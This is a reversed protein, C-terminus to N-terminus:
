PQSEATGYSAQSEEAGSSGGIALAESMKVLFLQADYEKMESGTADDQGRSM